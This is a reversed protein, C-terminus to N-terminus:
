TPPSSLIEWLVAQGGMVGILFESQTNPELVLGTLPDKLSAVPFPFRIRGQLLDKGPNFLSLWLLSGRWIQAQLGEPSQTLGKSFPSASLYEPYAKLFDQYRQLISSFPSPVGQPEGESSPFLLGMGLSLALSATSLSLDGPPVEVYLRKQPYLSRFFLGEPSLSSVVFGEVFDAIVDSPGEALLIPKVQERAFSTNMEEFIQRLGWSGIFPSPHQHGPHYCSPLFAQRWQLLFGDAGTVRIVRVMEKALLKRWGEVAPCLPLFPSEASAEGRRPRVRWEKATDSLAFPSQSSVSLVPLELLVQNGANHFSRLYRRLGTNGERLPSGVLRGEPTWTLANSLVVTAAQPITPPDRYLVGVKSLPGPPLTRVLRRRIPTLEALGEEPQGQYAGIVIPGVMRDEGSPIVLQQKWGVVRLSDGSAPAGPILGAYFARSRALAPVELLDWRGNDASFFGGGKSALLFALVSLGSGYVVEVSPLTSWLAKQGCDQGWWVFSKESAEQPCTILPFYVEGVWDSASSNHLFLEWFSTHRGLTLELRGSLLIGQGRFEVMASRRTTTFRTAPFDQLASFTKGEADKLIFPALGQDPAITLNAPLNKLAILRMGPGQVRLHIFLSENSLLIDPSKERSAQPVEGFSLPGIGFSLLVLSLAIRFSLSAM